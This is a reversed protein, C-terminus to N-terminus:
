FFYLNGPELCCKGDDTATVNLEYKDRDLNILGPVLRIVGTNEEIRFLGSTTSGGVFGFTVGDGDKDSAVVTTVLTNPGANEDVNPTYVQQSFKPEEDNKNETYIRVTATGTRPPEGRDKATVVFEYYANNSDADLRKANSVIGKSNVTFHDDSVYYEIDANSGSDADAAKVKLISTGIPIDEEVNHAQYDPLEFKPANDNVDSVKIILEVSTSFGGSDETATVLLQYIHPQRLDEFDLEKALKVIGTSPGINFTGQGQNQAKLTYRIERDAFSKAKVSIIDSDKKQSEPIEAEYSPMYFQPPRKGGVISLREEKTGQWGNGDRGNQDEAKVYLVYEMDLQFPETGRTRVVGSREDVEFRGGTRDRVLFYHINHDTDPDKAQLTFVRTNPPANLKVVAQMPLPRNIFYPPEDNVDKIKIIVRQNDTYQLGRWESILDFISPLFNPLNFM